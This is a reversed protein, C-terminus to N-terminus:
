TVLPTGFICFLQCMFDTDVRDVRDLSLFFTRFSGQLTLLDSFYCSFSSTWCSNLDNFNGRIYARASWHASCSGLSHFSTHSSTHLSFISLTPTASRWCPLRIMGTMQSPQTPLFPWHFMESQFHPSILKQVAKKPLDGSHASHACKHKPSKSACPRLPFAVLYSFPQPPTYVYIRWKPFM